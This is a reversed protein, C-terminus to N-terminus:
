ITGNQNERAIGNTILHTLGAFTWWEHNGPALNSTDGNYLGKNTAVFIRNKWHSRENDLWTTLQLPLSTNEYTFVLLTTKNESSELAAEIEANIHEDGFSYGCVILVNDSPYSLTQKFLSFLFAFPSKQTAIYKTAQPYILLNGETRPYGCNDRCRIAVHDPDTYWDVSGHLKHLRAQLPLDGVTKDQLLKYPDWFAMAGGSFGDEIRIKELALADELLTDYNTTFFSVPPRRELNARNIKFIAKIFERHADVKVIPTEQTGILEPTSTTKEKYGYRIINRIQILTKEYADLLESKTYQENEIYAKKTKSRDAITILDGIHSLVHEIHTDDPLTNKIAIFIKRTKADLCATVRNTLPHMLPVGADFSIGAGFLWNQRPCNLHLLLQEIKDEKPSSM